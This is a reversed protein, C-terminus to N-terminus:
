ANQWVSHLLIREDMAHCHWFGEEFEDSDAAELDILFRNYMTKARRNYKAKQKEVDGLEDLLANWKDRFQKCALLSQLYAKLSSNITCYQTRGRRPTPYIWYIDGNTGDLCIFRNIFWDGSRFNNPGRGLVVFTSLNVKSDLEKNGTKPYRRCREFEEEDALLKISKASHRLKVNEFRMSLELSRKPREPLGVNALIEKDEASLPLTELRAPSAKTFGKEGWKDRISEASM